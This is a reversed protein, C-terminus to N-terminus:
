RVEEGRHVAYLLAGIFLEIPSQFEKLGAGAKIYACTRLIITMSLYGKEHVSLVYKIFAAKHSESVGTPRFIFYESTSHVLSETILAAMSYESITTYDVPLVNRVVSDIAEM